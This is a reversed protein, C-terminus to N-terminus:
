TPKFIGRELAVLCMGADGAQPNDNSDAITRLMRRAADSAVALTAKAAALRVQANAHDYLQLLAQRQDGARGKLVEEVAEMEWFLHSYKANDDTCIARDQDLAIAAFRRVLEEETLDQLNDQKM